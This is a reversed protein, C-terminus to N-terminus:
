FRAKIKRFLELRKKVILLRLWQELLIEIRKEPDPEHFGTELAADMAAEVRIVAERAMSGSVPDQALHHYIDLAERYYGQAEYAQAMEMTVFEQNM